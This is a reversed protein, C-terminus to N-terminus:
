AELAEYAADIEGDFRELFVLKRLPAAAGTFDAEVDIRAQIQRQLDSRQLQLERRLEDLTAAERAAELTERLEMQQTLFDVPM